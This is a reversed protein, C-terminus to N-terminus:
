KFEKLSYIFKLIANNIEANQESSFQGHLGGPITMFENKVGLEDLKKKLDISQQIPVTPDADGHVIFIPPSNKKVQYIPSVSEIFAQDTVKSGLWKKESGSRFKGYRKDGVDVIGYKDIIAAVKINKVGPCNTDFRNDNALLGGMLALHGGASGGMIVIKNVDINLAKANKILYILACRADEVAAPATAQGSLRYAINAVAFGAKFYSSFGGQTDKSGGSWGGGHINIIAPSLGKEQAPLYLDMKGEWGPSSTYVVNLQSSYGTPYAVKRIVPVVEEQASAIFTLSLFGLLISLKKM